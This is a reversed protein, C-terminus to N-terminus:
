TLQMALKDWFARFDPISPMLIFYVSEQFGSRRTATQRRLPAHLGRDFAPTLQTNMPKLETAPAGHSPQKSGDHKMTIVGIDLLTTETWRQSFRCYFGTVKDSKNPCLDIVCTVAKKKYPHGEDQFSIEFKRNYSTSGLAWHDARKKAERVMLLFIRLRGRRDEPLM